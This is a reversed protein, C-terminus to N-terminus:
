RRCPKKSATPSYAAFFTSVAQDAWENISDADPPENKGLLMAHNIPDSMMRWNFDSAARAPNTVTLLGRDNPRQFAKTLERITRGLEEEANVPTDSHARLAPAVRRRSAM